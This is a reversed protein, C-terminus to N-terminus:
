RTSPRRCTTLAHVWSAQDVPHAGPQQGRSLHGRSPGLHLPGHISCCGHVPLLHPALLLDLLRVSLSRAIERAVVVADGAVAGMRDVM